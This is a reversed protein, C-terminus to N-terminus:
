RRGLHQFSMSTSFKSTRYQQWSSWQQNPQLWVGNPFEPFSVRVPPRTMVGDWIHPAADTFIICYFTSVNNRRMLRCVFTAAERATVARRAAFPPGRGLLRNYPVKIYWQDQNADWWAVRTRGFGTGVWRFPRTVWRSGVKVWQYDDPPASGAPIKRRREFPYPPAPMRLSFSISNIPFDITVDPTEFRVLTPVNELTQRLWRGCNEWCFSQCNLSRGGYRPRFTSACQRFGNTAASCLREM